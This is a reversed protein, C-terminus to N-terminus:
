FCHRINKVFDGLYYQIHLTSIVLTGSNNVAKTIKKYFAKISQHFNLVLTKGKDDHDPSLCSKGSEFCARGGLRRIENGIEDLRIEM